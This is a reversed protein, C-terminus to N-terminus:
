QHVMLFRMDNRPPAYAGVHSDGDVNRFNPPSQWALTRVPECHCPIKETLRYYDYIRRIWGGNATISDGVFCVVSDKSFQFM